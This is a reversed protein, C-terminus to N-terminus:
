SKNQENKRPNKVMRGNVFVYDSTEDANEVAKNQTELEEESISYQVNNGTFYGVTEQVGKAIISNVIYTAILPYFIITLGVSIGFMVGESFLIALFALVSLVLLLIMAILNRLIKGFVLLFSNKYIDRLRLEYTITLIPVYFMMALLLLTFIIYLTFVSGFVIDTKALTGYYLIAFFSCATIAYFVVGNILSKKLNEKLCSFFASVVKVDQKEISYKRIVMVLGSFFPAGPIIGLGWIIINNFGALMGILIFLGTFLAFPISFLLGALLLQPFKTFFRIFSSRTFKNM